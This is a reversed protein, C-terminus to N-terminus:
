SRASSGYVGIALPATVIDRLLPGPHRRKWALELDTGAAQAARPTRRGALEAAVLAVLPVVAALAVTGAHVLEGPAVRRDGRWGSAGVVVMMRPPPRPSGAM